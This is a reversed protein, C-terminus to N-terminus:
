LLKQLKSAIKVVSDADNMIYFHICPAGGELLGIAQQTAHEIGIDVVHEPSAMIEQVLEDPFDCFFAKPITQLQRVSKLIKLGPVVPAQIGQTRCQDVFSFYHKNDYFLQTTVYDAGADLKQKLYSIDQKLSPSEFHKEPYGAVGVCFDMAALSDTQELYKGQGLDNIQAVLDSAYHNITRHNTVTKKYNPGDGRLALVNEVGLYNLEILADETEEKTFGGCLLHAVTDIKFRNQIVGCIGMTGPRKRSVKKEITGDPKEIYQATSAHATVDIWSPNYPSVQEVIKIIDGVGQGRAPPIIEFSLLPSQAKDLHEIVKM